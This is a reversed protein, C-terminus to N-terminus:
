LHVMADDEAAAGFAIGIVAFPALVLLLPTTSDNFGLFAFPLKGPSRCCGDPDLTTGAGSGEVEARPFAPLPHDPRAGNEFVSRHSGEEVGDGRRFGVGVGADAREKINGTENAGGGRKELV